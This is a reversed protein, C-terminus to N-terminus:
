GGGRARGAPGPIVQADQEDIREDGNLNDMRGDGDDDVYVDAADDYAPTRFGSKVPM